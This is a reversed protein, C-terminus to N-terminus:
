FLNPYNRWVDCDKCIGGPEGRLHSQRIAELKASQWAEAVKTTPFTGLIEKQHPDACCILINGNWAVAPALWLHYCPWRSTTDTATVGFASTAINGGYNHLSRVQLPEWSAWREQEEEPTIEKLIRVMFRGWKALTRITAPSFRAEPRWTWHIKTVGEKPHILWDLHEELHTGNTTLLITHRPNARKIYQVRDRLQPDLLPEGFLHLSFSRAGYQTAEDVVGKFVADDMRNGRRERPCYDCRLNCASTTEIFLHRPYTKDIWAQAAAKYLWSPTHKIIAEAYDTIM